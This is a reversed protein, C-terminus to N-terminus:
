KKRGSCSRTVVRAGAGAGAGHSIEGGEQIDRPM